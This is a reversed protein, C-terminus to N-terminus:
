PFLWGAYQVKAAFAVADLGRPVSQFWESMPAEM